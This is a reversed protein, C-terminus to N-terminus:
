KSKENNLLNEIYSKLFIKTNFSLGKPFLSLIEKYNLRKALKKLVSKYNEEGDRSEFITETLATINEGFSEFPLEYINPSNDIRNFVIVNSSPIEQLIIPSHTAIIAYSNYNALINHLLRIMHSIANPHLHTEPEDFLILSEPLIHALINAVLYIILKQGSSFNINKFNTKEDLYKDYEIRVTKINEEGIIEELYEFFDPIMHRTKLNDISKKFTNDIETEDFIGEKDRSGLYVYNFNDTSEPIPFKDFISYSIAIVKSFVPKNKNEFNGFDINGSLSNALNALYQTKGTGNRGIIAYIRNPLNREKNFDFKVKHYDDANEMKCLYTFIFSTDLPINFIIKRGDLFAKKALDERFISDDFYTLLKFKEMIRPFLSIDNLSKLITESDKGGFIKNFKYYYEISQGLSCFENKLRGFKDPITTDNSELSVIKIEGFRNENNSKEFYSLDYTVLSGFDNWPTKRLVFCPFRTDKNTISNFYKSSYFIIKTM